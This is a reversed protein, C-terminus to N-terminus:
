SVHLSVSHRNIGPSSDVARDVPLFALGIGESKRWKLSM